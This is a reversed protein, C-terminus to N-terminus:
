FCIVLGLTEYQVGDSVDRCAIDSVDKCQRGTDNRCELRPKLESLNTTFWDVSVDIVMCHIM